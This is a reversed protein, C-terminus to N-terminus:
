IMSSLLGSVNFVLLVLHSPSFLTGIINENSPNIIPIRKNLIPARWEGDIFLERSAVTTAMKEERDRVTLKHIHKKEKELIPDVITWAIIM